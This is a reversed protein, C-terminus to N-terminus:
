KIFLSTASILLKLYGNFRAQAYNCCGPPALTEPVFAIAPNLQRAGDYSIRRSGSVAAEIRLTVPASKMVCAQANM